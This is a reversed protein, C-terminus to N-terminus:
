SARRRGRKLPRVEIVNSFATSDVADPGAHFMLVSAEASWGFHEREEVIIRRGDRVIIKIPEFPEAYYYSKLESADIM